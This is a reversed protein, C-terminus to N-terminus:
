FKRRKAQEEALIEEVAADWEADMDSDWAEDLESEDDQMLESQDSQSLKQKKVDEFITFVMWDALDKTYGFSILEETLKIKEVRISDKLQPKTITLKELLTDLDDQDKVSNLEDVSLSSFLDSLEETDNKIESSSFRQSESRIKLEKELCTKEEESIYKSKFCATKMDKITWDKLCGFQQIDRLRSELMRDLKNEPILSSKCNEYLERGLILRRIDDVKQEETRKRKISSM